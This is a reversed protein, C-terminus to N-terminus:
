KYISVVELIGLAETLRTDMALTEDKLTTLSQQYYSIETPEAEPLLSDEIWSIASTIVEQPTMTLHRNNYSDFLKVNKKASKATTIAKLKDSNQKIALQVATSIYSGHDRIYDVTLDAVQYIVTPSVDIDQVELEDVITQVFDAVTKGQEDFFKEYDWYSLAERCDNLEQLLYETDLTNIDM